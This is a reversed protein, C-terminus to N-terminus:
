YGIITILVRKRRKGDFEAYIIQEFPGLDLSGKTIAVTIDRKCLTRKIHSDANADGWTNHHYFPKGTMREDNPVLTEFFLAMDAILTPSSDQVMVSSTIHMPNLMALGDTIGSDNIASQVQTTMNEFQMRKKTNFYVHKRVCKLKLGSKVSTM